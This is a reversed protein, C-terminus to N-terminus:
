EWITLPADDSHRARLEADVQDSNVKRVDAMTSTRKNFIGQVTRYKGTQMQEQLTFAINDVDSAYLDNRSQFWNVVAALTLIVTTVAAVAVAIAFITEIIM